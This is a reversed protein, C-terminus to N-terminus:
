QNVQVCNDLGRGILKSSMLDTKNLVIITDEPNFAKL